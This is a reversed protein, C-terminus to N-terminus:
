RRTAYIIKGQYTMNIIRRTEGTTQAQILGSKLMELMFPLEHKPMQVSYVGNINRYFLKLDLFKPDQTNITLLKIEPYFRLVLSILELAQYTQKLIMGEQLAAAIKFGYIVPLDRSIRICNDRNMVISLDNILWKSKRGYLVARPIKGTIRIVLSDPLVRMISVQGISPVAELAARKQELDISFLNDENITLDLISAVKESRGDWWGSSKVVIHRLTFHENKFFFADAAAKILLGAGVIVVGVLLTALLIRVWRKKSLTRKKISKNDTTTKPKRANKKDKIEAM